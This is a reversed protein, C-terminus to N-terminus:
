DAKPKKPKPEEPATKPAPKAGLLKKMVQDFPVAEDEHEALDPKPTQTM